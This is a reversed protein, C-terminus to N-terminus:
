PQVDRARQHAPHLSRCTDGSLRPMSLLDMIRNRVPAEVCDALDLALERLRAAWSRVQEADINAVSDCLWRSDELLRSM